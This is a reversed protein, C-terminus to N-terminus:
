MTSMLTKNLILLSTDWEYLAKQHEGVQAMTLNLFNSLDSIQDLQLKNQDQLIQM